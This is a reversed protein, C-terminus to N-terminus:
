AVYQVSVMGYSVSRKNTKAYTTTTVAYTTM